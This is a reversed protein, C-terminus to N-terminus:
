FLMYVTKEKNRKLAPYSQIIEHKDIDARRLYKQLQQQPEGEM